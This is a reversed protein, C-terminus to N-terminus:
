IHMGTRTSTCVHMYIIMCIISTCVHLNHVQLYTYMYITYMYITYWDHHFENFSVAGYITNLVFLLCYLQNVRMSHHSISISDIVSSLFTQLSNIIIAIRVFNCSITCTLVRVSFLVPLQVNYIYMYVTYFLGDYHRFNTSM